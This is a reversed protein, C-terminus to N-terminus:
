PKQGVAAFNCPRAPDDSNVPRDPRWDPSYVVGPELITFSGFFGAFEERGRMTIPDTTEVYSNAVAAVQERAEPGAEEVSVHSLVLYSGSPLRTRYQAMLEHPHDAPPVFPLVSVVLLALPQDFDILRRTEPHNLISDPDRLDAEFVTANAAGEQELLGVSQNVAVLDNDVYVVHADPVLEHVVQHTNGETPIGSGIDLFQRIGQQACFRAARQLFGRNHTAWDTLFPCLRYMREAFEVDVAFHDQGGLYLDYMRAASPKTVDIERGSFEDPEDL